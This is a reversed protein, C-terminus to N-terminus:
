VKTQKIITDQKILILVFAMVLVIHAWEVLIHGLLWESTMVLCWVCLIIAWPLAWYKRWYWLIAPLFNFPIILWNWRTCPLTSIFVTYTIVIGLLTIIGLITYDISNGLVHWGRQPMWKTALSLLALALLLVSILIPTCRITKAEESSPSIIKAEKDLLPQGEITANQWVEVLDSPAILKQEKAIHPNDIDSGALTMLAFRNWPLNAKSVCEYGLERLTGDFKDPWAAYEICKGKLAKEVVQVISIACGQNYYDYPQDIGKAALKDMIRWLDMEQRPSLHLAYERVGRKDARYMSFLTDPRLVFMGMKLDGKLFRLWNSQIDESEYTYLYDMDFTPCQLHLMLHGFSSFLTTGPDCVVLNVLIFDEAERDITDTFGQLANREAVSLSDVQACAYISLCVCLWLAYLKNAVQSFTKENKNEIGIVFMKGLEDEFATAYTRLYM